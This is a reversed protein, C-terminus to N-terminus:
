TASQMKPTLIFKSSSSNAGKALAAINATPAAKPNVTYLHNTTTSLNLVEHELQSILAPHAAYTSTHVNSLSLNGNEIDLHHLKDELTLLRQM